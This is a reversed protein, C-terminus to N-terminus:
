RVKPDLDKTVGCACRGQCICSKNAQESQSLRARKVKLTLRRM